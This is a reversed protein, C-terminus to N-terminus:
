RRRHAKLAFRAPDLAEALEREVPLPEGELASALLEAAFPAWILGRSGYGILGFLGALRPVDRLRSGAISLTMDPLAGVLPLRDPTICRFGVRGAMDVEGLKAAAQPLIQALRALNGEHSDRRLQRLQMGDDADYSAGICCIGKSPRTLYGEGCVVVPLAPVSAAPLHTVQGRMASLPLDQTQTAFRAHTGNALILVPAAAVIAGAADFVQWEGAHREFHAVEIGFHMTLRDKCTALMAKCVSGPHVWAGQPFLWGGHSHEGGLLPMAENAELWQAFNAPYRWRQATERQAQADDADRALELVGCGEGEFAGGIGGIQRWVNLTFLYAARLLRSTLNDDKSLLPMAIGALNGSAEQAVQAHREVLTVHWGRASLRECAASGALGAGIVIARRDEVAHREPIKWRPAFQATLMEQKRGFGRAKEIVFGAQALARQVAHAVTYTALTADPAALRHLRALIEPSWMAPNKGPSFGDLYFADARLDIQPLCDAIDGFVLTLVVRGEDLLLRHCGPVLPPWAARLDASVAALEPWTAHLQALDDATFPHKEVAVYHLRKCAQPDNRWAHWTALFNLGLGFGTELITFREQQQWRAPLRNGGLFVHRAQGLGGDASHYVDDFTEAYPIGDVFSLTAPILPSSQMALPIESRLLRVVLRHAARM